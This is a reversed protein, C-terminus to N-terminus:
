LLYYSMVHTYIYKLCADYTNVNELFLATVNCIIM